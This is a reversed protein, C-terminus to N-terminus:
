FDTGRFILHDKFFMFKTSSLGQIKDRTTQVFGTYAKFSMEESAVPDIEIFSHLFCRRHTPIIISVFSPGQHVPDM